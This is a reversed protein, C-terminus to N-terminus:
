LKVFVGNAAMIHLSFAGDKRPLIADAVDLQLPWSDRPREHGIKKRLLM